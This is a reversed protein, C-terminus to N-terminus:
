RCLSVLPGVRVRDECHIFHWGWVQDKHSSMIRVAARMSLDWLQATRDSSGTALRPVMRSVDMSLVWSSNRCLELWARGKRMMCIYTHMMSASYLVRPHIPSYALSRVPMFHGELHHLFKAQAEDFVSITGDM